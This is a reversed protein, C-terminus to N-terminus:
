SKWRMGLEKGLNFSEDTTIDQAGSIWLHILLRFLHGIEPIDYIIDM